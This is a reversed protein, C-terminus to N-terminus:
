TKLDPISSDPEPFWKSVGYQFEPTATGSDARFIRRIGNETHVYEINQLKAINDVNKDKISTIFEDIHKELDGTVEVKKGDKGIASVVRGNHVNCTVDDVVCTYRRISSGVDKIDFAGTKGGLAAVDAETKLRNIKGDVKQIKKGNLEKTKAFVDKAEKIIGSYGVALVKPYDVTLHGIGNYFYNGPTFINHEMALKAEDSMYATALESTTKGKWYKYVEHLTAKTEESIYFPDATRNEVTDFEAELWEFSYEPFVQCSRPAKTASGVILENDRITIPINELIHKFAKARRTIIPEGETAKYSETLLVARDAEIQPMKEFLAEVLLPIRPSKAIPETYFKM